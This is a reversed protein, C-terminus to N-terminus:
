RPPPFGDPPEIALTFRRGPGDYVLVGRRLIDRGLLAEVGSGSLGEIELVKLDAALLETKEGGLSISIDVAYVDAPVPDPGTSPTHLPTQGVPSLGLQDIVRRAINTSSAGIDVLARVLIPQLSSRYKSEATSVGVYLEVTARGGYDLHSSLIPM